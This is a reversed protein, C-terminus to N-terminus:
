DPCIYPPKKITFELLSTKNKIDFPLYKEQVGKQARFCTPM